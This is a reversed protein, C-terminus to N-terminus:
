QQCTRDNDWHVDNGPHSCVLCYLALVKQQAWRQIMMYVVGASAKWLMANGNVFLLFFDSSSMLLHRKKKEHQFFHFNNWELVTVMCCLRKLGHFCVGQIFDVPWQDKWLKHSWQNKALLHLKKVNLESHPVIDCSVFSDKWKRSCHLHQACYMWNFQGQPFNLICDAILSSNHRLM